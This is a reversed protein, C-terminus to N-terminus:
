VRNTLSAIVATLEGAEVPKPIQAQFGALIARRRDDARAYATLAIAPTRARGLEAERIRWGRMLQYGDGGPMGIDSLILDFQQQELVTMANVLSDAATVVCGSEQLIRQTLLRSDAEDDVVLIKLKALNLQNSDASQSGQADGGVGRRQVARVPLSVVFSSGRDVGASFAQVSGGHLEM